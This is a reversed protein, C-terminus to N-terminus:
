ADPHIDRVGLTKNVEKRLHEKGASKEDVDGYMERRTHVGEFFSGCATHPERGQAALARYEELTITQSLDSTSGKSM